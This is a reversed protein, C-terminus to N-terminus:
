STLIKEKEAYACAIIECWREGRIVKSLGLAIQQAHRQITGNRCRTTNLVCLQSNLQKKGGRKIRCNM